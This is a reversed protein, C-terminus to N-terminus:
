ATGQRHRPFREERTLGDLARLRRAAAVYREALGPNGESLRDLDLQAFGLSEALLQARGRELLAAARGPEGGRAAALGAQEGLRRAAHLWIEKEARGLQHQRLRDAAEFALDYASSAEAWSARACAWEGWDLAANLAVELDYALASESAQRYADIGAALDEPRHRMKHRAALGGALGALLFPRLRPNREGASAAAVLDSVAADLGFGPVDLSALTVGITGKSSLLLATRPAADGRRVAQAYAEHAALLDNSDGTLQFRTLRLQGLAGLGTPRFPSRKGLLRLADTALGIADDLERASEMREAHRQLATALLVLLAAREQRPGTAGAARAVGIAARLDDISGDREYRDLLLTALDSALAARASEPPDSALADRAAQLAEAFDAPRGLMEHRTALNASLNYLIWWREGAPAALASVRSWDIAAGLDAPDGRAEFRMGLVNGLASAYSPRDPDSDPLDHVAATFCTIAADLDAPSGGYRQYREGLLTGAAQQMGARTVAPVHALGDHSLVPLIAEIASDAASRGPRARYSEYATEAAIWQPRLAAPVNPATVEDFATGGVQRYRRLLAQHAAFARASANDGQASALAGLDTLVDDADPSLLVPHREVLVRSAAWSEAQVFRQVLAVLRPRSPRKVGGAV